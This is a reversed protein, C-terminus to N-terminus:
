RDGTPRESAPGDPGHARRWRAPPLGSHRVFAAHFASTSGFGAERAVAEAPLDTTLLLRQAEAVRFQAVYAAVTTGVVARFLAAARDPHLHVVGAVDRVRLDEAHHAAIYATMRTARDLDRSGSAAAPAGEGWAGRSMRCVLAEVELMAARRDLADPSALEVAWRAFAASLDSAADAPAGVLVGGQLLGRTVREPVSWSLFVALPVTVYGFPHGGDIEVLQHPRAGWFACPRGAPLEIRTGASRYALPRPSLNIEVDHHAHPTSMAATRGHWASFGFSGGAPPSAAIM